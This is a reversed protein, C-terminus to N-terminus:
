FTALKRKGFEQIFDEWCTGELGWVTNGDLKYVLLNNNFVEEWELGHTQEEFEYAWQAIIEMTDLYDYGKSQLAEMFHDALLASM